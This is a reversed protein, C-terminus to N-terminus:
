KNRHVYGIIQRPAIWLDLNHECIASADPDGSRHM